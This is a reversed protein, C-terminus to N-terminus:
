PFIFSAFLLWGGLILEYIFILLGGLDWLVKFSPRVRYIANGLGYIAAAIIGFWALLEPVILYIVFTISYALTGISFLMQAITFTSNKGKLLSLAQNSLREKDVDTASSYQGAIDSLSLFKRKNNIQILGEVGRSALWVIGLLINFPSFAIFLLLALTVIVAHEVIVLFTGTRFKQPNENIEQLKADSDLESFTEYGYKSTAIMLIVIILLFLFGSLEIFM